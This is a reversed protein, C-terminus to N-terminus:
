TKEFEGSLEPPYDENHIYEYGYGVSVAPLGLLKFLDAHRDTAFTYEREHLIKEIKNASCDQLFEQMLLPINGGSFRSQPKQRNFKRGTMTALELEQRYEFETNDSYDDREDGDKCLLYKFIDDDYVLSLLTSCHFKKSIATSLVNPNDDFRSYIVTYNQHTKSLFADIRNEQLYEKLQKRPVGKVTINHYFNGM